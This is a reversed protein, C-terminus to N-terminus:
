TGLEDDPHRRRLWTHSVFLVKELVFLYIDSLLAAPMWLLILIRFLTHFTIM